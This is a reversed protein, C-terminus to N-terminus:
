KTICNIQDIIMIKGKINNQFLFGNNGINIIPIGDIPNKAPNFDSELPEM